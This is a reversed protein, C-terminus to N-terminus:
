TIPSGQRWARAIRAMCPRQQVAIRLDNMLYSTGLIRVEHDDLVALLKFEDGIAAMRRFFEHRALSDM